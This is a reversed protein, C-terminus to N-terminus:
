RHLIVAVMVIVLVVGAIGLLLTMSAVIVGRERCDWSPPLAPLDM